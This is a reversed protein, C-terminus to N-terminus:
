AGDPWEIRMAVFGRICRDGYLSEYVRARAGTDAVDPLLDAGLEVVMDLLPRSDGHPIYRRVEVIRVRDNTNAGSQLVAGNGVVALKNITTPRGSEDFLPRAEWLKRRDRIANYHPRKLQLLLTKRGGKSQVDIGGETDCAGGAHSPIELVRKSPAVPFLHEAARKPPRCHDSATLGRASVSEEVPSWGSAAASLQLGSASSSAALAPDILQAEVDAPPGDQGSSITSTLPPCLGRSVTAPSKTRLRKGPSACAHPNLSSATIGPAEHCLGSAAPDASGVQAFCEPPSQVSYAEGQESLTILRSVVEDLSLCEPPSQVSYAAGQEVPAEDKAIVLEHMQHEVEANDQVSSRHMGPSESARGRNRAEEIHNFYAVESPTLKLESPSKGGNIPGNCRSKLDRYANALSAECPEDSRRRPLVGRSLTVFAILDDVKKRVAASPQEAGSDGGSSIIETAVHPQLTKRDGESQDDISGETNCARAAQSRIQRSAVSQAVGSSKMPQARPQKIATPPSLTACGRQEEVGSSATKKPPLLM